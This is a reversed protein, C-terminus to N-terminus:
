HPAYLAATEQRKGALSLFAVLLTLHIVGLAIKAAYPIVPEHYQSLFAEVFGAWVLLLAVGALLTVVAPAIQRIRTGSAQPSGWGILANALVFGAQGALLIAPIEVSGHPLLWGALFVAEGARVYDAIVAGFIVGNYFLVISSGLGWTMGLAFVFISVKINHTMLWASFTAKAGRMRDGPTQEEARVRASPDGQLHPFPMLVAKAQPDVLLAGGGFLAGLLTLALTLWFANLHQRFTRPWTSVFWDWPRWPQSRYRTTHLEGYAHAVLTELYKHSAPEAAFTSLRALDAAARQYLYYLRKVQDISLRAFTDNELRQLMTQLEAWYPQEQLLFKQLDLIM